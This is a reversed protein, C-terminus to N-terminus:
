GNMALLAQLMRTEIVADRCTTGTLVSITTFANQTGVGYDGM